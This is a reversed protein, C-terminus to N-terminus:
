SNSWICVFIMTKRTDVDKVLDMNGLSVPFRFGNTLDFDTVKFIIDLFLYNGVITQKDQLHCLVHVAENGVVVGENTTTLDAYLAFTLHKRVEQLTTSWPATRRLALLTGVGLAARAGEGM